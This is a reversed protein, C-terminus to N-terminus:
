LRCHFETGAELPLWVRVAIAISAAPLAIVEAGSVMVTALGSRLGGVAGVLREVADLWDEIISLQLAEV